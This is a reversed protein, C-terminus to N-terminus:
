DEIPITNSVKYFQNPFFNATCLTIGEMSLEMDFIIRLGEQKLSDPLTATIIFNPSELNDVDIRVALGNNETNCSAGGLVTGEQNEIINNEDDDSCNALFPCILLFALKLILGNKM